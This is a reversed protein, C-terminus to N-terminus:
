FPNDNNGTNVSIGLTALAQAERKSDADDLRSAKPKSPRVIYLTSGIVIRHVSEDANEPLALFDLADFIMRKLKAPSETTTMQTMSVVSDAYRVDPDKAEKVTAFSHSDVNGLIPALKKPM